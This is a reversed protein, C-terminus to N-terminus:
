TEGYFTTVLRKWQQEAEQLLEILMSYSFGAHTSGNLLAIRSPALSPPQQGSDWARRPSCPEGGPLDGATAFGLLPLAKFPSLSLTQGFPHRQRLQPDDALPLQTRGVARGACHRREGRQSILEVRQALFVRRAV